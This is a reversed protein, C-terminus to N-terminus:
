MDTNEDNLVQNDASAAIGINSFLMSILLGFIIPKLYIQKKKLMEDGQLIVYNLHM